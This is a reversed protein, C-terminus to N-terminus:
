RGVLPVGLYSQVQESCAFRTGEYAPVDILRPAVRPGEGTVMMSCLSGDWAYREGEQPVDDGVASLVVYDDGVVRSVCWASMPHATHLHHLITHSAARFDLAGGVSVEGESPM